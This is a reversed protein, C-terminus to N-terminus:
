DGRQSGSRKRGPNPRRRHMAGKHWRVIFGYRLQASRPNCGVTVATPAFDLSSKLQTVFAADAACRGANACSINPATLSTIVNSAPFYGGGAANDLTVSKPTTSRFTISQQKPVCTTAAADKCLLENWPGFSKASDGALLKMMTDILMWACLIIIIGVVTHIFIRHARAINGPQGRAFVYLMGAQVFLGAAVVVSFVIFANLVHVALIELDCVSCAETTCVQDGVVTTKPNIGCTVLPSGPNSAAAAPHVSRVLAAGIALVAVLFVLLTRLLLRQRISARTSQVTQESVINLALM